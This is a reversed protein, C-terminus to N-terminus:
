NGIPTPSRPTTEDIDLTSDRPCYYGQPCKLCYSSQANPQYEGEICMTQEKVNAVCFYGPDCPNSTTADPCWFGANCIIINGTLATLGRANCQEGGTCRYCGNGDGIQVGNEDTEWEQTAGDTARFSGLPCPIEVSTGQPCYSGAPCIYGGNDVSTPNSMKAAGTCVYGADCLKTSDHAVMNLEDCYFGPNCPIRFPTGEPCYYGLGCDEVTRPSGETVDPCFYGATCKTIELICITGEATGETGTQCGCQLGAPCMVCDELRYATNKKTFFGEPCATRYNKGEECYHNAGCIVKSSSQEGLYFNAPDTGDVAGDYYNNPCQYGAPCPSCSDQGIKDQYKGAACRNRLGNTCYHGVDCFQGPPMSTKEGANCYWGEKCITYYTSGYDQCYYGEPCTKCGNDNVDDLKEFGGTSSRYTGPECPHPIHTGSQSSNEPDPSPCYHGPPCIAGGEAQKTPTKTTAKTTCYYGPDCFYLGTTYLGNETLDSMQM